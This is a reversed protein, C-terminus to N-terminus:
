GARSSRCIHCRRSIPRCIRSPRCIQSLRCNMPLKAGDAAGDAFESGDRDAIRSCLSNAYSEPTGASSPGCCGSIKRSPRGFKQFSHNTGEAIAASTKGTYTNSPTVFSLRVAISPMGLLRIVWRLLCSVVLSKGVIPYGSIPVKERFCCYFM